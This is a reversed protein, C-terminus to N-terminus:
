HTPSPDGPSQPPYRTLYPPRRAPLPIGKSRRTSALACQKPLVRLAHLQATANREVTADIGQQKARCRERLLERVAAERRRIEHESRAGVVVVLGEACLVWAERVVRM